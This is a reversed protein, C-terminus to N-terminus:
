DDRMALVVAAGIYVLAFLSLPILLIIRIRPMKM